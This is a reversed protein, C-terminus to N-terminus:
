YIDAKKRKADPNSKGKDNQVVAKSMNADQVDQGDMVAVM